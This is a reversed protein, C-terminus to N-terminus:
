ISFDVAHSTARKLMTNVSENTSFNNIGLRNFGDYNSGDVKLNDCFEDYSNNTMKFIKDFIAINIETSISYLQNEWINFEKNQSIILSKDRKFNHRNNFEDIISSSCDEISKKKSIDKFLKIDDILQFIKSASINPLNKETLDKINVKLETEDNKSFNCKLENDCYLMCILFSKNLNFCSIELFKDRNLVNLNHNEEKKVFQIHNDGFDIKYKSDIKSLDSGIYNGMYKQSTISIIKDLDLSYECQKFLEQHAIKLNEYKLKRDSLLKVTINNLSHESLKSKYKEIFSEFDIEINKNLIDTDYSHIGNNKSIYNDLIIILEYGENLLKLSDESLTLQSLVMNSNSPIVNGPLNNKRGQLYKTVSSGDYTKLLINNDTVPKDLFDNQFMKLIRGSSIIILNSKIPNRIKRDINNHEFELDLFLLCDNGRKLHYVDLESKDAFSTM